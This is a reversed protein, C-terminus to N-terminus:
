FSFTVQAGYTRPDGAYVFYGGGGFNPIDGGSILYREEFLNEAYLNFGFGGVRFGARLNVLTLPGQTLNPDLDTNLFVSSRYLLEAQGFVDVTDSVPRDYRASASINWEPTNPLPRGSLDQTGTVPDFGPNPATPDTANLNQQFANAVAGVFDAYTAETYAAAINFTLGDAPNIQADFEVGYSELAGVNTLIQADTTADFQSAQFDEFETLFVAINMTALGDFLTSKLGVEYNTSTEPAFQTPRPPDFRANPANTGGSKYGTAVTAYAMLDPNPFFQLGATWTVVQDEFTESEDFEQFGILFALPTNQTVDTQRKFEDTYRLGAFINFRDDAFRYNGHAFFSYSENFFSSTRVEGQGNLAGGALASGVQTRLNNDLQKNFYFFGAVYNFPQDDPSAIRIEQTWHESVPNSELVPLFDVASFDGDQNRFNEFNRYAAIWTLTHDGLQINAEGSLGWREAQVVGDTNQAVEFDFPSDLRDGGPGLEDDKGYDGSLVLSFEDSPEFLIKGRVGWRDRNRLESGTLTNTYFGDRENRFGSVRVAVTDGILPGSITGGVQLEDFNGYSARFDGEWDFSPNKTIFHVIGAPSNKGFLTGQPGRLVEVREIDVFDGVGNGTRDMFVGDVFIGVSPDLENNRGSTGFGRIAVTGDRDSAGTQFQLSPVLRELDEFGTTQTNALQEGTVAAISIPVDQLSQERRQATVVITNGSPPAAEDAGDLDQAISPSAFALAAGSVGTLAAMRAAHAM